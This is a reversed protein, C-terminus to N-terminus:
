LNIGVRRLLDRIRFGGGGGPGDNPMAVIGGDPQRAITIIDHAGYEQGHVRSFFHNPPGDGVHYTLTIPGSGPAKPTAPDPRLLISGKGGDNVEDVAATGGPFEVRVDRLPLGTRNVVTIRPPVRGNIATMVLLALLGAIGILTVPRRLLRVLTRKKPSEAEAKAAEDRKKRRRTSRHSM